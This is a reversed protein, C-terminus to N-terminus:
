DPYGIEPVLNSIQVEPVLPTAVFEVAVKPQM